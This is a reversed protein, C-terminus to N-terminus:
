DLTAKGDYFAYWYTLDEGLDIYYIGNGVFKAVCKTGEEKAMQKFNHLENEFYNYASMHENSKFDLIKLPAGGQKVYVAVGVYDDVKEDICNTLM